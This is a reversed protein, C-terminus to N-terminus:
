LLFLFWAVKFPVIYIHFFDCLIYRLIIKLQLPFCTPNCTPNVHLLRTESRPLCNFFSRLCFAMALICTKVGWACSLESQVLTRQADFAAQMVRPM